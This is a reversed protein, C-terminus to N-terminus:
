IMWGVDCACGGAHCIKAARAPLREDASNDIGTLRTTTAVVILAGAM